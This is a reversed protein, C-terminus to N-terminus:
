TFPGKKRGKEAGKLLSTLPRAIVSYGSIFWRYFNTFGLFVQVDRFSKPKPWERVIEVRSEEILIGRTNVVYGLFEVRDISFEYKSLKAYLRFERLRALV